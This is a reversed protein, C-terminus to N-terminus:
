MIKSLSLAVYGQPLLKESDLIYTVEFLQHRGSYSGDNSIRDFKEVSIRVPMPMENCGEYPEDTPEFENLAILDGVKFGRDNKRIEFTKKGSALAEFYEPLCKLEHIM